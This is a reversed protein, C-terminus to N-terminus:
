NQLELNTLLVELNTRASITPGAQQGTPGTLPNDDTAALELVGLFGLIGLAGFLRLVVLVGFNGM